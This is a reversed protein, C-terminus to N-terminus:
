PRAQSATAPALLCADARHNGEELQERTLRIAVGDRATDSDGYGQAAALRFWKYAEINSEAADKALGEFSGRRLRMGLFHQAGPDGQQAAMQMWILAKADDQAVGQGGAFMLGLNFQALAHNQNAARLYWDAAKAYDLSAGDGSAFRLGLSFQAEAEKHDARTQTSESGARRSGKFFFRVWSSTDM